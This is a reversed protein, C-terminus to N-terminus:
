IGNSCCFRGTKGEAQKEGCGAGPRIGWNIQLPDLRCALLVPGEGM